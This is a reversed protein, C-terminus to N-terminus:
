LKLMINIFSAPQLINFPTNSGGSAVTIGTSAAGTNSTGYNSGVNGTGGGGPQQADLYTHFHTPDTVTFNVNPLEAQTLTHTEAGDIEGLARSTLGSGAGSVSLARGLMKTLAIPKNAAFDASASGGRGGTVPAYTNSVNNWLVAFLAATDANARTTAGSSASGITGDDCLVWGNDATTKLTPKFDGTSFAGLLLGAGTLQIVNGSSDKYFLEVNGTVTKTYLSAGTKSADFVPSPDSAQSILTTGNHFGDNNDGIWSHDQKMRERLNLKLDRIVGAGLSEQDTDAPVAEYASNWVDTFAM